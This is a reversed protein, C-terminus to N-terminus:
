HLDGSRRLEKLKYVVHNRVNLERVKRFNIARFPLDVQLSPSQQPPEHNVAFVTTIDSHMRVAINGDESVLLSGSRPYLATALKLAGHTRHEHSHPGPKLREPLGHLPPLFVPNPTSM